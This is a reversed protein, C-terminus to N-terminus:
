SVHGEFCLACSFGSARRVRLRAHLFYFARLCTVVPVGFRDPKEQAFPKLPKSRAREPSRAKNDGDGAHLALKM